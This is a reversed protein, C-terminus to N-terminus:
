PRRGFQGYDRFAPFRRDINRTWRRYAPYSTQLDDVRGGGLARLVRPLNHKTWAEAGGEILPQGAFVRPQAVHSYEHLLVELAQLNRRAGPVGYARLDHAVRPDLYVRRNYWGQQGSAGPITVGGQYVSPPKGKLGSAKWVNRFFDQDM